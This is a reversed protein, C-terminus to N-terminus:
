GKKRTADFVEEYLAKQKDNMRDFTRVIPLTLGAARMRELVEGFTLGLEDQVDQRDVSGAAYLSLLELIAAESLPPIADPTM